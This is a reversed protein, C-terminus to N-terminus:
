IVFNIGFLIVRGINPIGESKLRSLHSIYETNLMNNVNISANFKFKELQINAITSFHLLNYGPSSTEFPSVKNQKFISELNLSTNLSTLWSNIKFETRLANKLKNAPILPLYDKNKQRGIVM